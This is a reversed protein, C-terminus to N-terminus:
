CKHIKDEREEELEVHLTVLIVQLNYQLYKVFLNGESENAYKHCRTSLKTDSHM